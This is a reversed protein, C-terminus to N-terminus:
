FTVAEGSVKEIESVAFGLPNLVQEYDQVTVPYPPGVNPDVGPEWLPFVLTAICGDQALMRSTSQAWAARMPPDLAAFFLYDFMWDFKHEAEFTFYDAQVLSLRSNLEGIAVGDKSSAKLINERAAKVATESIDIGTVGTCGMAALFYCEMGSGCGPVLVRKDKTPLRGKEIAEVLPPCVTGRLDWPTVNQRWAQEWDRGVKDFFSRSQGSSLRPALRFAARQRWHM